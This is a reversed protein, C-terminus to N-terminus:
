EILKMYKERGLAYHDNAKPLKQEKLYTVYNRLQEIAQSNAANFETMLKENKIEKLAAVLDHGLFDIAGNAEDMATEVQPRPLEEALNARAAAMIQPANGLVAIISRVRDELPAFDRKIYINVDLVSAYTMPNQSYIRAQDFAFMERKIASRLIRYDYFSTPSLHNKDLIALRHDFTTLRDLESNLSPQSFDTVKGDYDHFGLSTGTQPRWALYGAIYDDAVRAFVADSNNELTSSSQPLRACGTLAILFLLFLKQM